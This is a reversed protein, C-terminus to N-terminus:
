ERFYKDARINDTITALEVAQRANEIEEWERPNLVQVGKNNCITTWWWNQGFDFYVNRIEYVTDTECLANLFDCVVQMNKYAREDKDLIRLHAM